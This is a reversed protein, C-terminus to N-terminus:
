VGDVDRKVRSPQLLDVLIPVITNCELVIHLPGLVDYFSGISGSFSSCWSWLVRPM